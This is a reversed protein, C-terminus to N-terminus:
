EGKLLKSMKALAVIKEQPLNAQENKKYVDVL